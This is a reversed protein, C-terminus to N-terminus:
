DMNEVTNIPSYGSMLDQDIGQAGYVQEGYVGQIGKYEKQYVDADVVNNQAERLNEPTIFDLLDENYVDKQILRPIRVDYIKIYMTVLILAFIFALVSDIFILTFLIAVAIIYQWEKALSFQLKMPDVLGVVILLIVALIRLFQLM